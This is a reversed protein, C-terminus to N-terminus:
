IDIVKGVQSSEKAAIAIELVRRADNANEMSFKNCRVCDIFNRLEAIFMDNRDIAM